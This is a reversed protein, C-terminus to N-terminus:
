RCVSRMYYILHYECFTTLPFGAKYKIISLWISKEIKFIMLLNICLYIMNEKGYIKPFGIWSFITKYNLRGMGYLNCLCEFVWGMGMVITDSFYLFRCLFLKRHFPISLHFSRFPPSFPCVSVFLHHHIFHQLHSIAKGECNGTTTNHIHTIYRKIIFISIEIYKDGRQEM